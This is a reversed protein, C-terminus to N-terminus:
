AFNAVNKFNKVWQWLCICLPLHLFTQNRDVVILNRLSLDWWEWPEPNMYIIIEWAIENELIRAIDGNGLESQFRCISNQALVAEGQKRIPRVYIDHVEEPTNRVGLAQSAKKM